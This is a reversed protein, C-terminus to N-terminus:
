FSRLFLTVESILAKATYWTATNNTVQSLYLYYITQFPFLVRSVITQM